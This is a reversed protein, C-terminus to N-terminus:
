FSPVLISFQIWTLFISVLAGAVVQMRTHAKLVIRSWCVPIILTLIPAIYFSHIYYVIATTPGAIGSAHISIKWYRNIFAMIITNFFYCFMCITLIAPANLFYLFLFGICYSAIGILFPEKRAERDVNLSKMFEKDTYLQVTTFPVIGAFLTTIGFFLFPSSGNLMYILISFGVTAVIPPRSSYSICFAIKKKMM